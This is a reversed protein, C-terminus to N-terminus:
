EKISRQHVTEGLKTQDLGTIVDVSDVAGPLTSESDKISNEVYKGRCVHADSARGSCIVSLM